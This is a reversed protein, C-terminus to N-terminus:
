VLDIEARIEGIKRGSCNHLVPRRFEQLGSLEVASILGLQALVELMVVGSVRASGDEIKLAIGLTRTAGRVGVCRIGEAGVKSLLRGNLAHMMATDLRGAGAVMDPNASMVDFVRGSQSLTGEAIRAYMLAMNKVPLYFVPAGCGDVGTKTEAEPLGSFQSVKARISKQVPHDPQLYTALPWGRYKALALMGSHKGSCNNYLPSKEKNERIHAQASAEHLPLHFGCQLDDVELGAKKQISRVADLHFQEGSHSAMIVALERDTLCFAEVAGSEILPMAQVPKAASRMYTPTELDGLTAVVEGAPTVVAVHGRHVSEVRGDRTVEALIGPM